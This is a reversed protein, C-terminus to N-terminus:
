KGALAELMPDYGNEGLMKGRDQYLAERGKVGHGEVLRNMFNFLCCVQIADHLAQESWGAELVADALGQTTESPEITLQRAYALVPKLRDDVNAKQLDEILDSLLESEIGFTEATVKHVGHCYRCANLGSVYAAILEREGVTLESDQRMVASHFQVLAIGAKTNLKLIDKVSNIHANERLFSM